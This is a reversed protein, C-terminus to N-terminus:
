NLLASGKKSGHNIRSKNKQSLFLFSLEKGARVPVAVFDKDNLTPEDATYILCKGSAFEDKNTNRIWRRSLGAQDKM